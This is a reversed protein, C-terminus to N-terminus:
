MQIDFASIGDSSSSRSPHTRRLVFSGHENRGNTSAVYAKALLAEGRRLIRRVVERVGGLVMNERTPIQYCLPGSRPVVRSRPM